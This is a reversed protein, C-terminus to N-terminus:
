VYMTCLCIFMAHGHMLSVSQVAYRVAGRVAYWGGTAAPTNILSGRGKPEGGGKPKEIEWSQSEDAAM